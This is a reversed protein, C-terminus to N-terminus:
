NHCKTSDQINQTKLVGHRNGNSFFSWWSGSSEAECRKASSFLCYSLHSSSTGHRLSLFIESLFALNLKEEGILSVCLVSYGPTVSKHRFNFTDKRRLGYINLLKEWMFPFCGCVSSVSRQIEACFTIMSENNSKMTSDLIEQCKSQGDSASCKIAM